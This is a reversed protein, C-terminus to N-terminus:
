SVTVGFFKVTDESLGRFPKPRLNTEMKYVNENNRQNNNTTRKFATCSYCYTHDNYVSLADSSGCDDCPLHTKLAQTNSM